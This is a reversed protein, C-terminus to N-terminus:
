DGSGQMDHGLEPEPVRPGPPWPRTGFRVDPPHAVRRIVEAQHRIIRFELRDARDRLDIPEASAEKIRRLASDRQKRVVLGVHWADESRPMRVPLGEDLIRKM